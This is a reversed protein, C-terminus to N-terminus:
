PFDGQLLSEGEVFDLMDVGAEIHEVEDLTLAQQLTIERLSEIRERPSIVLLNPPRELRFNLPPFTVRFDIIPNFIGQQALTERVQREIIREVTDQLALRREQLRGLEAELASLDNEANDATAAEIQKEIAEAQKTASFYDIVARTEDDARDQRGPIRQDIEAKIAAFEWRVFDFLYPRVISELEYDFSRGPACGAVLSCALLLGTFITVRM